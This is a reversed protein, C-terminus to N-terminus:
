FLIIEFCQFYTKCVTFWHRMGRIVVFYSAAMIPAPSLRNNFNLQNTIGLFSNIPKGPVLLPQNCYCMGVPLPWNILPQYTFNSPSRSVVCRKYFKCFLKHLMYSALRSIWLLYAAWVMCLVAAHSIAIIAPCRILSMSMIIITVLSRIIGSREM